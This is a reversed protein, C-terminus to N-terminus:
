HEGSIFALNTLIRLEVSGVNRSKQARLRNYDETYESLVDDNEAM